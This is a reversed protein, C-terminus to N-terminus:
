GHQTRRVHAPTAPKAYHACANRPPSLTKTQVLPFMFAVNMAFILISAATVTAIVPVHM